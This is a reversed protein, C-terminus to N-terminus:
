RGEGRLLARAETQLPNKIKALVNGYDYELEKCNAVKRVFAELEEIRKGSAFLAGELRKIDAHHAAERKRAEELEQKPTIPNGVDAVKDCNETGVFAEIPRKNWADLLINQADPHFRQLGFVPKIKCSKNFCGVMKYVNNEKFEAKQGCFPCHKLITIENM